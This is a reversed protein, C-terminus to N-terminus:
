NLIVPILARTEAKHDHCAQKMGRLVMHCTVSRGASRRKPAPTNCVGEGRHQLCAKQLDRPLLRTVRYSLFELTTAM